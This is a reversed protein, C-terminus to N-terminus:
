KNQYEYPEQVLIIDPEEREIVKMLNFTAFRSHQLNIQLCRAQKPLFPNIVLNKKQYQLNDVRTYTYHTKNENKPWGAM